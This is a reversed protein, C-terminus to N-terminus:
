VIILPHPGARYTNTASSRQSGFQRGALTKSRRRSLSCPSPPGIPIALWPRVPVRPGCACSGVYLLRSRARM